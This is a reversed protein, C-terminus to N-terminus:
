SIYKDAQEQLLRASTKGDFFLGSIEDIEDKSIKTKGLTDAMEFDRARKAQVGAGVFSSQEHRATPSSQASTASGSESDTVTRPIGTPAADPVHLQHRAAPLAYPEFRRRM